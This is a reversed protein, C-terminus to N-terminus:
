VTNCSMNWNYNAYQITPPKTNASAIMTAIVSQDDENMFQSVYALIGVKSEKVHEPVNKLAHLFDTSYWEFIKPLIVKNEKALVKVQTQCFEQATWLLENEINEPTFTKILSACKKEGCVFAFHVRPDFNAPCFKIRPDNANAFAVTSNVMPLNCRLVGHEVDNLSFLYPGISYVINSFFSSRGFLASPFGNQVILAHIMMVNYLNLFFCKLESDNHCDKEISSNSLQICLVEFQWFEAKEQFQKFSSCKNVNVLLNRLQVILDLINDDNKAKNNGKKAAQQMALSANRLNLASSKVGEEDDEFRFFLYEDKLEHHRHVHHFLGSHQLKRLEEVVDERGSFIHKRVIDYSLIFSIM